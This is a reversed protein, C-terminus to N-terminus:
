PTTPWPLLPTQANASANKSASTSPWGVPTPAPPILRIFRKLGEAASGAIGLLDDGLVRFSGFVRQKMGIARM